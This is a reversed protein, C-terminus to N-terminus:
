AFYDAHALWNKLINLYLDNSALPERFGNQRLKELDSLPHWKVSEVEAPALEFPYDTQNQDFYLFTHLIKDQFQNAFAFTLLKPDLKIGLEEKTERLAAATPTEGFDIHGAASIDYAGPHKKLTRARTQILVEPANHHKRFLWVIAIGRLTNEPAPGLNPDYGGITIPAGNKSYLQYNERQM